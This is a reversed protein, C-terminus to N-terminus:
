REKKRKVSPVVARAWTRGRAGWRSSVVRVGVIVRETAQREVAVRGEPM